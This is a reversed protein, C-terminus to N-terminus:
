IQIFVASKMNTHGHGELFPARGDDEYSPLRRLLQSSVVLRVRDEDVYKIWHAPICKREQTLQGRSLVLYAARNSASEVFLHEIDGVHRKDSSIVRSGAKLSATEEPVIWHKKAPPWPFYALGYTLYAMQAQDQLPYWYYCAVPRPFVDKKVGTEEETTSIFYKEDFPPLIDLDGADINLIVEDETASEIMYLAVIRDAALLWGAQVVIHTVENTAPDLVFRNIRGVQRGDAAYVDVGEKFELKGLM